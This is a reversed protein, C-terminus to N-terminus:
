PAAATSTLWVHSADFTGAATLVLGRVTPAVVAHTDYQAIPVVPVQEMIKREARQYLDWRKGEDAEARAARLLFDIEPSSFGTLNDSLGSVFLSSLFADASPYAGIWGLRFM